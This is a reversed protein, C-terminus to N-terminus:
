HVKFYTGQRHRNYDAQMYTLNNVRISHQKSWPPTNPTPTPPPGQHFFTTHPQIYELLLYFPLFLASIKLSYIYQFSFSTEQVDQLIVVLEVHWAIIFKTFPKWHLWGSEGVFCSKVFVEKQRFKLTISKLATVNQCTNSGKVM